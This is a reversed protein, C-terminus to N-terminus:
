KYRWTLYLSGMTCGLFISFSISAYFYGEKMCIVILGLWLVCAVIRLVIM